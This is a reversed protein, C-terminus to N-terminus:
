HHGFGDRPEGLGESFPWTVLIVRTVYPSQERRGTRVRETKTADEDHSVEWGVYSGQTAGVETPIGGGGATGKMFLGGVFRILSSCDSGSKMGWSLGPDGASSSSTPSSSSSRQLM